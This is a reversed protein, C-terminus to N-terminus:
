KAARYSGGSDLVKGEAGMNVIHMDRAKAVTNAIEDDAAPLNSASDVVTVRDGRMAQLKDALDSSEDPCLGAPSDAASGGFVSRIMRFLKM